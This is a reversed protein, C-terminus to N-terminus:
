KLILSGLWASGAITGLLGIFKIWIARNMINVKTKDETSKLAIQGLLATIGSNNSQLNYMVNKIEKLDERNEKHVNELATVRQKTEANEIQLIQIQDTHRDLVEQIEEDDLPM